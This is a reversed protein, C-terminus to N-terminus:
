ENSIFTKMKLFNLSKYFTYSIAWAVYLPAGTQVKLINGNFSFSIITYVLLAICTFLSSHLDPPAKNFVRYINLLLLIQSLIFIMATVIGLSAGIQLFDSHVWGQSGWGMGLPNNKISNVAYIAYQLRAAGSSDYRQDINGSFARFTSIYRGEVPQSYIYIVFGIVVFIAYPKMYPSIKGRYVFLIMILYITIILWSIRNGSLYIAFLNLLIILTLLINNKVLSSNESRLFLLIPFVPPILNAALHSGWFLFAVRNFFLDTYIVNKASASGFVNGMLSPFLFETIGLTSIATIPYVYYELISILHNRDLKIHLVLFFIAVLLIGNKFELLILSNYRTLIDLIFHLSFLVGILLISNPMKYYQKCKFLLIRFCAVYTLIEIPHLKFGNFPEITRYGFLFAIVIWVLSNKIGNEDVLINYVAILIYGILLGNIIM